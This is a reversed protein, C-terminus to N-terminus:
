YCTDPLHDDCYGTYIYVLVYMIIRVMLKGGEAM